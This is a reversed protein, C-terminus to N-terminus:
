DDYEKTNNQAYEPTPWVEDCEKHKWLAQKAAKWAVSGRGTLCLNYNPHNKEKQTIFCGFCKNYGDYKLSVAYDQENLASIWDFVDAPSFVWQKVEDQEAPSLDWRVFAFETRGLPTREPRKNKTTM